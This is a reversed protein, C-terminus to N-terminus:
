LKKEYNWNRGLRICSNDIYRKTNIFSKKFVL